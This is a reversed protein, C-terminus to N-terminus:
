SVRDIARVLTVAPHARIADLAARSAPEDLEYIHIADGGKQRRSVRM